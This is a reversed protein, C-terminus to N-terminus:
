GIEDVLESHHVEAIRVLTYVDIIATASEWLWDETVPITKIGVLQCRCLRGEKCRILLVAKCRSEPAQQLLAEQSVMPHEPLEAVCWPPLDDVSSCKTYM